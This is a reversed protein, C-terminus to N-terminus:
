KYTIESWLSKKKTRSTQDNGNRREYRRGRIKAMGIVATYYEKIEKDLWEKSFPKLETM